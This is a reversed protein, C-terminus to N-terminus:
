LQSYVAALYGLSEDFNRKYNGVWSATFEKHADSRLIMFIDGKRGHNINTFNDSWYIESHVTLCLRSKVDLFRTM